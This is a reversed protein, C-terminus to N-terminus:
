NGWEKMVTYFRWPYFRSDKKKWDEGWVPDSLLYPYKKHALHFLNLHPKSYVAKLGMLRM